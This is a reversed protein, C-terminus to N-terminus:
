ASAHRACTEWRDCVWRYRKWPKGPPSVKSEHGRFADSVNLDVTEVPLDLRLAIWQSADHDLDIPDGHVVLPIEKLIFDKVELHHRTLGGTQAPRPDRILDFVDDGYISFRCM